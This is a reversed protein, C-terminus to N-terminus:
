QNYPPALKPRPHIVKRTDPKRIQTKVARTSVERWPAGSINDRTSFEVIYPEASRFEIDRVGLGCKAGGSGLSNM